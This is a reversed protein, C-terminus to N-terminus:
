AHGLLAAILLGAGSLSLIAGSIRNLWVLTFRHARRRLWVIGLSLGLWWLASGLFVGGVLVGIATLSAGEDIGVKAFIAAFALITIPNTLTLAFSSAFAGLLAEGALPEPERVARELLARGGMYLLFIGGAGSLWNSYHLIEDRVVTLGFCAIM